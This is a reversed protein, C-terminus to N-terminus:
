AECPVTACALGGQDGAEAITLERLQGQAVSLRGRVRMNPDHVDVHM